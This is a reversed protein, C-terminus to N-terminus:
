KCWDQIFITKNQQQGAIVRDFTLESFVILVDWPIWVRFKGLFTHEFMKDINLNGVKEFKDTYDKFSKAQFWYAIPEEGKLKKEIKGYVQMEWITLINADEFDRISPREKKNITTAAVFNFGNESSQDAEFVVAGGYNGGRLQFTICDGKDFIPKTTKRRVKKRAKPKTTPIAIKAVFKDLVTKRKKIEKETAGLERWVKLDHDPKVKDLTAQDLVGCEWLAMALAFWFNDLDEELELTGHFDQILKTKIVDISWDNNYYEFFSDYVDQYTDNSTLGTGWHGM